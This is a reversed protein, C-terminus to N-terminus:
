QFNPRYGLDCPLIKRIKEKMNQAIRRIKQGKSHVINTNTFTTFLKCWGKYIKNSEKNGLITRGSNHRQVGSSFKRALTNLGAPSNFITWCIKATTYWNCVLNEQSMKLSIMGDFLSFWFLELLTYRNLNMGYKVGYHKTRNNDARRCIVNHCEFYVVLLALYKSSLPKGYVVDAIKLPFPCPM